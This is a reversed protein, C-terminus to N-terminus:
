LCPLLLGEADNKCCFRMKLQIAVSYVSSDTKTNVIIVAVILGCARMSLALTCM